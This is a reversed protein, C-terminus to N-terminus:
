AGRQLVRLTAVLQDLDIPKGLLADAGLRKVEELRESTLDGTLVLVGRLGAPRHAQLAKLVERGDLDPLM